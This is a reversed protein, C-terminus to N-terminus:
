ARRVLQLQYSRCSQSIEREGFRVRVYDSGAVSTVIGRECDPHDANGHAHHPLYRVEDGLRFETPEAM